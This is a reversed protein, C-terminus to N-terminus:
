VGIVYRLVYQANNYTIGSTTGSDDNEANGKIYNDYIYLYKTGITAFKSAILGIM